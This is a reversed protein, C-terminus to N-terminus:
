VRRSSVVGVLMSLTKRRVCWTAKHGFTIPNSVSITDALSALERDLADGDM